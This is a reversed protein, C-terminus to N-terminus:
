RPREPPYSSTNLREAKELVGNRIYRRVTEVLYGPRLGSAKPEGADGGPGPSLPGQSPDAGPGSGLGPAPQTPPEAPIEKIVRSEVEIKLGPIRKGFVDVTLAGHSTRARVICPYPGPNTMKLDLYDWAVTADLGLPVYDVPLGHCYRETVTLGAQLMAVYVTTSVQCVGGGYDDELREGVIVPAKRYGREPTRPGVTANFSFTEGPWVVLEAMTSAALSINHARDAKSAAYYTTYSSIIELPLFAELEETRVRPEVDHFELSVTDPVSYWHGATFLAELSSANLSKGVVHPIVVVRDSSDIHFEADRVSVEFFSALRAISASLKERDVKLCLPKQRDAFARWLPRMCARVTEKLDPTVGLDAGFFLTAETDNGIFTIERSEWSLRGALLSEAARATLGGVDIGLVSTGPWIIVYGAMAICTLLLAWVIIHM